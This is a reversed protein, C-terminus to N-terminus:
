RKRYQFERSKRCTTCGPHNVNCYYRGSATNFSYTADSVVVEGEQLMAITGVAQPISVANFDKLEIGKQIGKM